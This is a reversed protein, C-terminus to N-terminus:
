ADTGRSDQLITRDFFMDVSQLRDLSGHVAASTMHRAYPKAVTSEAIPLALKRDPPAPPLGTPLQYCAKPATKPEVHVKGAM